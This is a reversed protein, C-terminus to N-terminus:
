SGLTGGRAICSHRDQVGAYVSITVGVKYTADLLNLGNPFTFTSQPGIVTASTTITAVASEDFLTWTTGSDISLFLRYIMASTAAVTAQASIFKISDIRTGNANGTILTTVTGSGDRAANAAALSVVAIVPALEFIPSTNAAM